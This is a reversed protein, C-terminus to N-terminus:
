QSQYRERRPKHSAKDKRQRGQCQGKTKILASLLGRFTMTTLAHDQLYNERRKEKM